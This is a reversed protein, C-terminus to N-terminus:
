SHFVFASGICEGEFFYLFGFVNGPLAPTLAFRGTAPKKSSYLKDQRGAEPPLSAFPEDQKGAQGSAQGRAPRQHSRRRPKHLAQKSM